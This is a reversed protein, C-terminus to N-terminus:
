RKAAEDYWTQAAASDGQARALDGLRRYAWPNAPFRQTQEVWAQAAAAPQGAALLAEGLWLRAWPLTPDLRVATRLATVAAGPDAQALAVRGRYYFDLAAPKEATLALGIQWRSVAAPQDGQAWLAEGWLFFAEARTPALAAAQQARKVAEATAAQGLAAQAQRRLSLYAPWGALRYHSQAADEAGLKELARALELHALRDRPQWALAEELAPRAAAPQAQALQVRGLARWAADSSALRLTARQLSETARGLQGSRWARMGQNLALWGPLYLALRLCVFLGCALLVLSRKVSRTQTMAM